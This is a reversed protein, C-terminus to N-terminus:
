RGAMAAVGPRSLFAARRQETMGAAIGNVVDRAAARDAAARAADGLGTWTRASWYLAQARLERELARSGEDRAVADLERRAGEFRGRSVEIRALLIRCRAELSLHGVRRAIDLSESAIRRAREHNGAAAEMRGVGVQAELADVDPLDAELLAAGRGFYDRAETTRGSEDALEGRALYLLPMVASRERGQPYRAIIARAEDLREGEFIAM